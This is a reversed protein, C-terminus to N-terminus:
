VRERCSARGIKNFDARRSLNSLYTELRNALGLHIDEKQTAGLMQLIEVDSQISNKAASISLKKKGFIFAVLPLAIFEQKDQIGLVLEAM